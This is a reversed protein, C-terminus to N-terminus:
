SSSKSKLASVHKEFAGMIIYFALTDTIANVYSDWFIEIEPTSHNVWQYQNFHICLQLLCKPVYERVYLFQIKFLTDYFHIGFKRFSLLDGSNYANSPLACYILIYILLVILRKCFFWIDMNM